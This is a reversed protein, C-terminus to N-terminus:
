QDSGSNDDDKRKVLGRGMFEQWLKDCMRKQTCTLTYRGYEPKLTLEAINCGECYHSFNTNMEIPVKIENM